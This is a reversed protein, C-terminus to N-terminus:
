DMALERIPASVNVTVTMEDARGDANKAAQEDPTAEAVASLTTHKQEDLDPSVSESPRIGKRRTLASMSVM